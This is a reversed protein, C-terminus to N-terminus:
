YTVKLLPVDRQIRGKRRLELSAYSATRRHTHTHTHARARTYASSLMYAHLGLM